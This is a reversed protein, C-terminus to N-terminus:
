ARSHQHETKRQECKVSIGAGLPSNQQECGQERSARGAGQIEPVGKDNSVGIDLAMLRVIQRRWALMRDPVRNIDAETEHAVGINRPPVAILDSYVFHVREGGISREEGWFIITDQGLLHILQCLTM